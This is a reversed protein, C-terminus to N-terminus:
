RLPIAGESGLIKRGEASAMFDIFRRALGHPEGQVILGREAFFRYKETRATEATPSIGNISVAKINDYDRYNSGLNVIGVTGPRKDLAALVENGRVLAIADASIALDKFCPMKERFTETNADDRKRTLVTVKADNGGLDKWSKIKGAFIDCVQAETLNGVSITKHIVVGTMSRAIAIYLLKGRENQTLPRSILGIHLRGMRVGEIGGETSMSEPRVEITDGSNKAMYAKALATVEDNLSGSGGVVIKEEASGTGASLLWVVLAIVQIKMRM